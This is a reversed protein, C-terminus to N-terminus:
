REGKDRGRLRPDLPGFLIKGGLCLRAAAVNRKRGQAGAEAPTVPSSFSIGAALKKM